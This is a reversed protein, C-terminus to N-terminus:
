GRPWAGDPGTGLLAARHESRTITRTAIARLNAGSLRSAAHTARERDPFVGFVASGSGSMATEVAGAAKLTSRMRSIAEPPRTTQLVTSRELDNPFCGALLKRSPQPGTPGSELFRVLSRTRESGHDGAPAAAPPPLGRYADPTSIGFDPVLLVLPLEPSDALPFVQEGRGTALALGGYLFYPADMGVESLLGHLEHRGLGLRFLCNLGVLAAAADSSGGGLGRGAPIGKQLRIATGPLRRGLWEELRSAARLVLNTQDTPISPTDCELRLGDGRPEFTLTDWLDVGALLTRVAHYGDARRSLVRLGLNVKAPTRIVLQRATPTPDAM